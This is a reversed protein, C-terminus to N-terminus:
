CACVLLVLACSWFQASCRTPITHTPWSIFHLLHLLLPHLTPLKPTFTGIVHVSLTQLGVFSQLDVSVSVFISESELLPTETDQYMITQGINVFRSLSFFALILVHHPIHSLSCQALFRSRHHVTAVLFTSSGTLPVAHHFQVEVMLESEETAIRAYHLPDRISITCAQPCRLYLFSLFIVLIRHVSIATYHLSVRM